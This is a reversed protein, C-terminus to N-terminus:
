ARGSRRLRDEPRVPAPTQGAPLARRGAFGAEPAHYWEVRPEDSRWCLLVEQGDIVAPFDVLGLDFGWDKYSCGIREFEGFLESLEAQLVGARAREEGLLREAAGERRQTLSRLERGRQLVDEVIRRVLPLTRNAELPSFKKKPM